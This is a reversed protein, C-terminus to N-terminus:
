HGGLFDKKGIQVGAVRLIDYATTCHFFLTPLAFDFLYDRGNFTLDGSRMHLEITREESGDFEVADFGRIYDLTRAIRDQAQALTTEEDPFSKPEVGALRASSRAGIDCAIQVQKILPFMDFILRQQLLGDPAAKLAEAHAQGKDLVHALNTLARVFVPVSAQYMSISM